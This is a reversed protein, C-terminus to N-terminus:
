NFADLAPSGEKKGIYLIHRIHRKMYKTSLKTIDDMKRINTRWQWVLRTMNAQTNFEAEYVADANHPNALTGAIPAGGGPAPNPIPRGIYWQQIWHLPAAPGVGAAPNKIRNYQDGTNDVIKEVWREAERMMEPVSAVGRFKDKRYPDFPRYYPGVQNRILRRLPPLPVRDIMSQTKRNLDDRTRNREHVINKQAPTLAEYEPRGPIYRDVITRQAVTLTAAYYEPSGYRFAAAPIGTRILLPDAGPRTDQRDYRAEQARLYALEGGKCLTGATWGITRVIADM